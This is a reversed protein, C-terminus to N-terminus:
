TSTTDDASAEQEKGGTAKKQKPAKPDIITIDEIKDEPESKIKSIFGQKILLKAREENHPVHEEGPKCHRMNEFRNLFEKEVM